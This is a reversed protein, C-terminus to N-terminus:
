RALHGTDDLRVLVAGEASLELESVSCPEIELRHYLRPSLAMAQIALARVMADHTVMAVCGGTKAAQELVAAARALLGALGEGNPFTMLEPTERWLRWAAPETRAVDEHTRWTWDGYDIDILDEVTRPAAGTARAVKAAVAQCRQLPSAWLADVRWNRGVRRAVDKAQREGKGSLPVDRRGRFRAPVIGEVEGHRILLVTTGM